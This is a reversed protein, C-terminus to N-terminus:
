ARSNRLTTRPAARIGTCVQLRDVGDRKMPAACPTARQTARSRLSYSADPLRLQAHLTKCPVTRAVPELHM